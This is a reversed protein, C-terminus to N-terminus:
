VSARCDAACCPARVFRYCCGWLVVRWLSSQTSTVTSGVKISLNNIMDTLYSTDVQFLDGGGFGALSAGMAALSPNSLTPAMIACAALALSARERRHTGLHPARDKARTAEEEKQQMRRSLLPKLYGRPKLYGGPRCRPSSPAHSAPGSDGDCLHSNCWSPTVSASLSPHRSM